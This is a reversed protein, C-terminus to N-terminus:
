TAWGEGCGMGEASKFGSPREYGSSTKVRGDQNTTELLGEQFVIINTLLLTAYCGLFRTQTHWFFLWIIMHEQNVDSAM